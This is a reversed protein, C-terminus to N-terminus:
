FQAAIRGVEALVADRRESSSHSNRYYAAIVVAEGAPPWAIGVDNASGSRNTGTRDGVPWGSPLGARLRRDGTKNAIMWSALQARSAASLAEAFFLTRLTAAMAAPTTTDRVDDAGEHENLATEYRDLRSVEDGISRLYKTMAEPGGCSRLILNAATNDSQTLMAHCLEAVSMGHAGVRKGTVPSWDVLVDKDFVIRRDLAEEKRDVRSLVLAAALAKFTSCLLFREHLRHGARLGSAAGSIAVGLRGGANQELAALAANAEEGSQTGALVPATLVSLAGAVAARRSLM